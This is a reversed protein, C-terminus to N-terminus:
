QRWGSEWKWGCYLMQGVISLLTLRTNSESM